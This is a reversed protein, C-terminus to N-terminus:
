DPRLSCRGNILTYSLPVSNCVFYDYDNEDNMRIDTGDGLENRKTIRFANGSPLYAGDPVEIRL